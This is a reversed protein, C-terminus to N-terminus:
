KFPLLNSSNAFFELTNLFYQLLEFQNSSLFTICKIVGKKKKKM